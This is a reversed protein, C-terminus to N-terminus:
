RDEMMQEAADIAGSVVDIAVDEAISAAEEYTAGNELAYEYAQNWADRYNM